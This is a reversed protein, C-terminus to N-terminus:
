RRGQEAECRLKARLDLIEVARRLIGREGDDNRLLPRGIAEYWRDFAQVPDETSIESIREIEGNIVTYYPPLMLRTVRATIDAPKYLLEGAKKAVDHPARLSFVSLGGKCSLQVRPRKGGSRMIVARFTSRSTRIPVPERNAAASISWSWDGNGDSVYANIDSPLQKTQNFLRILKPRIEKPSQEVSGAYEGLRRPALSWARESDAIPIKKTNAPVHGIAYHVSNPLVSKFTVTFPPSDIASDYGAVTAIADIYALAVALSRRADLTDPNIGPGDFVLQLDSV